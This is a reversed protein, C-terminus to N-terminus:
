SSNLIKRGKRKAEKNKLVKTLNIKWAVDAYIRVFYFPLLMIVCLGM